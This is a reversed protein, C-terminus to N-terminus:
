RRCHASARRRLLAAGAPDTPQLADAQQQLARMQEVEAVLRGPAALAQALVTVEDALRQFAGKLGLPPLYSQTHAFSSM